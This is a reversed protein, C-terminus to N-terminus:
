ITADSPARARPRVGTVVFLTVGGAVGALAVGGAVIMLIVVPRVLNEGVALEAGDEASGAASVTYSGIEDADFTAVVLRHEDDDQWRPGEGHTAITAAHIAPLYNSM